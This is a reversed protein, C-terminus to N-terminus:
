RLRPACRIRCALAPNADRVDPMARKARGRATLRQIDARYLRRTDQTMLETTTTLSPQATSRMSGLDHQGIIFAGLQLPPRPSSRTRRPQRHPGSDHQRGGITPVLVSSPRVAPGTSRCRHPPPTVPEGLVPQVPQEILRPRAPRPHDAVILDLRQDGRRQLGRRRIGRVPRRPRHGLMQPQTLRHHRPHPPRESQSRVFLIRPFQGLIRQEDGLDAVDDPEVQIRGLPRQHEAHVLLGLDLREVAGCRHERHQGAGRRPGAVVVDAM